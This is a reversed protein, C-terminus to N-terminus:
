LHNPAMLHDLTFLYVHLLQEFFIVSVGAAFISSANGNDVACATVPGPIQAPNGVPSWTNNAPNFTAVNALTGNSLQISGAAILLNPNSQQSM